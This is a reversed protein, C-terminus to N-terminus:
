ATTNYPPVARSTAITCFTARMPGTKFSTGHRIVCNEEIRRALSPGPDLSDARDKAQQAHDDDARKEHAHEHGRWEKRGDFADRGVDLARQPTGDAQEVALRPALVEQALIAIAKAFLE